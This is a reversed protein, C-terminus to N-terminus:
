VGMLEAITRAQEASRAAGAGEFLLVAQRDDGMWRGLRTIIERQQRSDTAQSIALLFDGCSEPEDTDDAIWAVSAGHTCVSRRVMEDASQSAPLIVTLSSTELLPKIWGPNALQETTPVAVMGIIHDALHDLATMPLSQGRILLEICEANLEPVFVFGPDIDELWQRCIDAGASRWQGSSLMVARHLNSYYCLQWEEPTDDDYYGACAGESSWDVAGILLEYPGSEQRNTVTRNM